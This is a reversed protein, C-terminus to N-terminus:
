LNENCGSQHGGLATLLTRLLLEERKGILIFYVHIKHVIAFGRIDIQVTGKTAIDKEHVIKGGRRSTKEVQLAMSMGQEERGLGSGHKYGM